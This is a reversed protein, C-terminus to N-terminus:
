LRLLADLIDQPTPPDGPIRAIVHQELEAPLSNVDPSEKFHGLGLADDGILVIGRPTPMAEFTLWLAELMRRTIPGTLLLVDAHRPSAVLRLGFREVDYVPGFLNAIELDCDGSSGSDFHRVFLSRYGQGRRPETYLKRRSFLNRLNALVRGYLHFTKTM